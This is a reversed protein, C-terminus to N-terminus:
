NESETAAIRELLKDTLEVAEQVITDPSIQSSAGKGGYYYPSSILSQLINTSILERLTMTGSARPESM